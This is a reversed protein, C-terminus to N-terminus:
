MGSEAQAVEQAKHLHANPLFNIITRGTPHNCRFNIPTDTKIEVIIYSRGRLMDQTSEALVEDLYCWDKGSSLARRVTTAVRNMQDEYRPNPPLFVM